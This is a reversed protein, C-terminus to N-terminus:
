DPCIGYKDLMFLRPPGRSEEYSDLIFRPMDERTVMNQDIQLNPHWDIAAFIISFNNINPCLESMSFTSLKEM